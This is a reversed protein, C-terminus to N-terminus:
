EWKVPKMREHMKMELTIIEEAELWRFLWNKKKLWVVRVMTHYDKWMRYNLYVAVSVDLTYHLRTSVIALLGCLSLVSTLVRFFRCYWDIKQGSAKFMESRCYYQFILAFIM